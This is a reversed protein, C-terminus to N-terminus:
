GRLDGCLSRLSGGDLIGVTDACCNTDFHGLSFIPCNVGLSYKYKKFGGLEGVRSVWETSQPVCRLLAFYYKVYYRLLAACIDAGGRSGGNGLQCKQETYVYAQFAYIASWTCKEREFV